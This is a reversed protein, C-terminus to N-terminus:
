LRYRDKAKAPACGIFIRMRHIGTPHECFSRWFSLLSLLLADAHELLSSSAMKSMMITAALLRSKDCLSEEFPSNKTIKGFSRAFACYNCDRANIPDDLIKQRKKAKKCNTSNFRCFCRISQACDM